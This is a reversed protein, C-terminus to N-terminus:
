LDIQARVLLSLLHLEGVSRWNLDRMPNPNSAEALKTAAEFSPCLIPMEDFMTCLRQSLVSCSGM